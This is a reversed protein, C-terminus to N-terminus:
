GSLLFVSVFPDCFYLVYFIHCIGTLWFQILVTKKDNLDKEAQPVFFGGLFQLRTRGDRVRTDEMRKGQRQIVIACIFNVTIASSSIWWSGPSKFSLVRNTDMFYLLWSAAAPHQVSEWMCLDDSMPLTHLCEIPFFKSHPVQVAYGHLPVLNFSM